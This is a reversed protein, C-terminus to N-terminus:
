RDRAQSLVPNPFRAAADAPKSFEYFTDSLIIVQFESKLWDLFEKAGELPSLGEIVEQFDRVTVGHERLIGLRRTMLEDYDPIERTTVLLEDIGTKQAVNIWIEPILVGELDLCALQM